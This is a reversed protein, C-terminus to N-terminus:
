FFSQQGTTQRFIEIKELALVPGVRQLAKKMFANDQLWAQQEEPELIVPMRDHIPSVSANAATTLITFATYPEGDPRTFRGLMGAMLLTRRGTQRLLYRDKQKQGNRRQWEYFGTSPVVCRCTLLPTQFMRTTLATEARANIVAGGGNWRPFGWSAPQPVLGQEWRLVPAIDTPFIEGTKVSNEGFQGEIIKLIARMEANEEETFISYRGCM